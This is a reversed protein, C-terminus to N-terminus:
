RTEETQVVPIPKPGPPPPAPPETTRGPRPELPAPTAQQVFKAIEPPLPAREIDTHCDSVHESLREATRFTSGCHPHECEFPLKAPRTSRTGTAGPALTTQEPTPPTDPEPHSGNLVLTALYAAANTGRNAAATICARLREPDDNLLKTAVTLAAGQLQHTELRLRLDDDDPQRTERAVHQHHPEQLDEEGDGRRRREEGDGGSPTRFTDPTTGSVGALGTTRNPNGSPTRFTDPFPGYLEDILGEVPKLNAPPDPFDSAPPRKRFAERPQRQEFDVIQIIHQGRHEWVVVRGVRELELLAHGTDANTISTLLPFCLARVKGPRADLRGWPDSHALIRWWIRETRDDLEALSLSVGVTDQIARWAM